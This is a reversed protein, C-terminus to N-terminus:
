GQAIYGIDGTDLWGDHFLKASADPNRYYGSTASPGRFEVRGEQRQPLERGGGDVVRIEHGALPAGCSVAELVAESTREAAVARGDVSLARADIRDIWPGRELPPFALGVGAEALGYVPTMARADFGYPAFREAFRRLTLARVPEAGNFALRWTRLDLGQLDTDDVIKTAAIEYAFNPGASITAHYRHITWLWRAPRGLFDTPPMIVLPVAHYMTALWAGILGMDHYLPLWSVFRDTSRVRAAVGMARINALLNAHSLVVGKPDGTSGSTYQLMAIDRERAPARSAMPARTERLRPVTTVAHLSPVEARVLRAVPMAEPVTVLLGAASNAMIAARGRVHEAIQSWRLPPYLPVPIAGAMLTALFVRFFDGGTPLMLAVADGPGIGAGALGQATERAQTWLSAYSFSEVVADQEVITVHEREPHTDLHWQFADILNRARRPSGEVEVLPAVEPAAALPTTGSAAEAHALADLLDRPTGAAAALREPLRVGFGAEIRAILEVRSLSDIGLDTALSDDLRPVRSDGPRLERLVAAVIAILRQADSSSSREALEIRDRVNM